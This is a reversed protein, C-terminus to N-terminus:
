HTLNKKTGFDNIMIDAMIFEYKSVNTYAVFFVKCM